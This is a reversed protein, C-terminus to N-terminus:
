TDKKKRKGNREHGIEDHRWPGDSSGVFMELLQLLETLSGANLWMVLGEARDKVSVKWEGAQCWLTLTPATRVEEEDDFKASRLFESLVPYARLLKDDPAHYRLAAVSGKDKRKMPGEWIRNFIQQRQGDGDSSLFPVLDCSYIFGGRAVWTIFFVQPSVYVRVNRPLYRYRWRRVNSRLGM